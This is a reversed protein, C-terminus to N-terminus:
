IARLTGPIIAHDTPIASKLTQSPRYRPKTVLQGTVKKIEKISTSM